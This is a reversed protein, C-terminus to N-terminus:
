KKIKLSQFKFHSTVAQVIIRRTKSRSVPKQMRTQPFVRVEQGVVQPELAVRTTVTSDNMRRIEKQRIKITNNNLHQVISVHM